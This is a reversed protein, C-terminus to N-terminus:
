AQQAGGARRRIVEGLLRPGEAEPESQAADRRHAEHGGPDRRHQPRRAASRLQEQRAVQQVLERVVLAGRQEHVLQGVNAAAVV